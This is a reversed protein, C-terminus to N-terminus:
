PCVYGAHAPEHGSGGGCIIKVKKKLIVEEKVCVMPIENNNESEEYILDLSKHMIMQLGKLSERVVDEKKNIFKKSM